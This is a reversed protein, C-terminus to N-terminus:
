KYSGDIAVGACDDCNFVFAGEPGSARSIITPGTADPDNRIIIPNGASGKCDRITLPGRTGSALTLMDGPKNSSCDYIEIQAAIEHDAAIKPRPTEQDIPTASANGADSFASATDGTSQADTSASCVTLIKVEAAATKSSDQRSTARITVKDPAPVSDPATYAGANSIRGLTADGGNVSWTVGRNDANLFTVSFQITAGPVVTASKPTIEIHIEKPVRSEIQGDGGGCASLCLCFSLLVLLLFVPTDRRMNQARRPKFELGSAAPFEAIVMAGVWPQGVLGIPNTTHSV